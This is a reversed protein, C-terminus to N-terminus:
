ALFYIVEYSGSAGSVSCICSAEERGGLCICPTLFWQSVTQFFSLCASSDQLPQVLQPVQSLCGGGQHAAQLRHLTSQAELKQSNDGM